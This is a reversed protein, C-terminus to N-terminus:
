PANPNRPDADSEATAEQAQVGQIRDVLMKNHAARRRAQMYDRMYANYELRTGWRKPKIVNTEDSM